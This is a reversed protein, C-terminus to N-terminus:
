LLYYTIGIQLLLSSGNFKKTASVDGTSSYHTIDEHYVTSFGMNYSAKLFLDAKERIRYGTSIATEIAFDTKSDRRMFGISWNGSIPIFTSDGDYQANESWYGLSEDEKYHRAIILLVGIQPKFYLHAKSSFFEYGIRLPIVSSNMASSGFNAATRSVQFTNYDYSLLPSSTHYRYYGSEISCQNRKFGFFGGLAADTEFVSLTKDRNNEYVFHDWKLGNEYGIFWGNQTLGNLAFFAIGSVTLIFAKM